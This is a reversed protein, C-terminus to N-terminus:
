IDLLKELNNTFSKLNFKSLYQYSYHLNIFNKNISIIKRNLSESFNSIDIYYDYNEPFIEVLGGEKSAIVIKGCAFAELASMGFDEKTPLMIIAKSNKILNLYEDNDLFNKFIINKFYFYKKQLYKTLSGYSTLYLIYNQNQSFFDLVEVIRKNKEHRSNFVFYNKYNVNKFNFKKEDFFPYLIVSKVNLNFYTEFNKKTFKSNFIILDLNSYLKKYFFIFIKRLIKYFISMFFNVKIDYKYHFMRKPLSHIYIVHKSGFKKLNLYSLISFNGSYLIVKKKYNLKIFFLFYFPVFLYKFISFFWIKKKSSVINDYKNFKSTKFSSYIKCKFHNSIELILREGGGFYNFFDHIIIM